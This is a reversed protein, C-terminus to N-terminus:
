KKWKKKIKNQQPSILRAEPRASNFFVNEVARGCALNYSIIGSERDAPWPTIISIREGPFGWPTAVEVALGCVRKYCRPM